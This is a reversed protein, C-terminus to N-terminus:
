KQFPVTALAEAPAQIHKMFLFSLASAPLVSLDVVAFFWRQFRFNVLLSYGWFDRQGLSLSLAVGRALAVPAFLLYAARFGSGCRWSKLVRIVASDNPNSLNRHAVWFEQSGPAHLTVRMKQWGDEVRLLALCFEPFACIKRVRRRRSFATRIRPASFNIVSEVGDRAPAVVPCFANNSIDCSVECRTTDAFLFLKPSSLRPV